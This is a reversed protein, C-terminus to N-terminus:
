YYDFIFFFKKDLCSEHSYFNIQSKNTMKYWTQRLSCNFSNIKSHRQDNRLTLGTGPLYWTSFKAEAVFNFMLSLGINEWFKHKISEVNYLKLFKLMKEFDVIWKFKSLKTICKSNM